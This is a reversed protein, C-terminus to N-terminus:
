YEVGLVELKPGGICNLNMQTVEFDNDFRRQHVIRRNEIYCTAPRYEPREQSSQEQLSRATMYQKSKSFATLLSLWVLVIAAIAFTPRM